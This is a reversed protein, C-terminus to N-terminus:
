REGVVSISQRTFCVAAAEIADGPSCVNEHHKQDRQPYKTSLLRASPTVDPQIVVHRDESKEGGISKEIRADYTRGVVTKRSPIYNTSLRLPIRLDSPNCMVSIVSGSRIM